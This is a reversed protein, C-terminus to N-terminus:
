DREEYGKVGRTGSRVQNLIILDLKRDQVKVEKEIEVVRPVVRGHANDSDDHEKVVAVAKKVTETAATAADARTLFFDNVLFGAVATAIGILPFVWKPDTYWHSKVAAPVEISAATANAAFAAMLDDHRQDSADQALKLSVAHDKDRRALEAMMTELDSM